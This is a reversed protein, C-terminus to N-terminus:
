VREPVFISRFDRVAPFYGAAQDISLQEAILSGNGDMLSSDEASASSSFLIIKPYPYLITAIKSYKIFSLMKKRSWGPFFAM